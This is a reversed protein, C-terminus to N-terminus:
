FDSNVLPSKPTVPIGSLLQPIPPAPPFRNNNRIIRSNFRAEGDRGEWLQGGEGLEQDRAETGLPSQPSCSTLSPSM